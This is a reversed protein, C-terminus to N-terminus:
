FLIVFFQTLFVFFLLLIALVSKILRGRLEVLHDFLPMKIDGSVDEAPIEEAM